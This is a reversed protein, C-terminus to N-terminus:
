SYILKTVDIIEGEDDCNEAYYVFELSSSDQPIEYYATKQVPCGNLLYMYEPSENEFVGCFPLSYYEDKSDKGEFIFYNDYYQDYGIINLATFDLAVIKNEEAATYGNYETGLDKPADFLITIDNELTYSEGFTLSVEKVDYDAYYEKNTAYSDDYDSIQSDESRISHGTIQYYSFAFICLAVVATIVVLVIIAIVVNANNKKPSYYNGQYAPQNNARYNQNATNTTYASATSASSEEQRAALCSPCINGDEPKFNYGCNACKNNLAM